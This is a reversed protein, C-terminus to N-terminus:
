LTQKLFTSTQLKLTSAVACLCQEPASWKVRAHTPVLHKDNDLTLTKMTSGLAVFMSAPKRNIPSHSKLALFATTPRSRINAARSFVNTKYSHCMWSHNM